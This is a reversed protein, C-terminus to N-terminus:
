LSGFDSIRDVQNIDATAEAQAITETPPSSGIM